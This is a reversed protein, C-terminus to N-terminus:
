GQLREDQCELRPLEGQSQGQREELAQGRIASRSEQVINSICLVVIYRSLSCSSTEVSPSCLRTPKRTGNGAVVVQQLNSARSIVMIKFQNAQIRRLQEVLPM